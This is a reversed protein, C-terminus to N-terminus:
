YIEQGDIEIFKDIFTYNEEEIDDQTTSPILGISQIYRIPFTKQYGKRYYCDEIFECLWHQTGYTIQEEKTMDELIFSLGDRTLSILKVKGLVETETQYDKFIIIEDNVQM